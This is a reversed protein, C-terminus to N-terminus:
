TFCMAMKIINDKSKSGRREEGERGRGGGERGKGEGEGGEKGGGGVGEPREGWFHQRPYSLCSSEDKM